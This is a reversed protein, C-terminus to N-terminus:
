FSFVLGSAKALIHNADTGVQVVISSDSVEGGFPGQVMVASVLMIAAEKGSNKCAADTRRVSEFGGADVVRVDTGVRLAFGLPSVSIVNHPVTCVVMVSPLWVQFRDGFNCVVSSPLTVVSGIM